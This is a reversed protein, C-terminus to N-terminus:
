DLNKRCCCQNVGRHVQFFLSLSLSKSSHPLFNTSPHSFFPFFGLCANVKGEMESGDWIKKDRERCKKIM